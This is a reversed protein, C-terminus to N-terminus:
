DDAPDSDVAGCNENKIKVRSVSSLITVRLEPEGDVTVCVSGNPGRKFRMTGDPNFEITRTPATAPNSPAVWGRDSNPEDNLGEDHDRVKVGAPFTRSIAKAVEPPSGPYPARLKVLHYDSGSAEDSAEDAGKPSLVVRWDILQNTANTHALRMDAAIQAAAAEVRWRELLALLIFIAIALLVGLIAVATLVEQLTYGRENKRLRVLRHRVGYM